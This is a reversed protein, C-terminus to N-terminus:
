IMALALGAGASAAGVVRLLLGRRLAAALGLGVVHLALTAAALGAISGAADTGAPLEAGHAVGHFLAFLGVVLAATGAQPRAGLAVLAGLVVVSAAIGIEVGPVALGTLGAVAGVVMTAVFALPVIWRARGGMQMAWAGVAAMALMHDLGGLPHLAGSSFGFAHGPHALAPTAAAALVIGAAALRRFMTM